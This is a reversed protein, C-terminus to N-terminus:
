VMKLENNTGSGGFTSFDTVCLTSQQSAIEICWHGKFDFHGVEKPKLIYSTTNFTSEYRRRSVLTCDKEGRNSIEIWGISRGIIYNFSPDFVIFFSNVPFHDQRIDERALEAGTMLLVGWVKVDSPIEVSVNGEPIIEFTEDIDESAQPTGQPPHIIGKVLELSNNFINRFKWRTSKTRLMQERTNHDNV